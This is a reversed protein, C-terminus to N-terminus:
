TPQPAALKAAFRHSLNVIDNKLNAITTDQRTLLIRVTVTEGSIVNGM